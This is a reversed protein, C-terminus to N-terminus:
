AGGANVCVCVCVRACVRVCVCVCVCVSDHQCIIRVYRYYHVYWYYYVMLMCQANKHYSRYTWQGMLWSPSDRKTGREAEATVGLSCNVRLAEVTLSM